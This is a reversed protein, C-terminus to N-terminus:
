RKWATPQDGPLLIFNEKAKFMNKGLGMADKALSVQSLGAKTSDATLSRSSQRTARFVDGHEPVM